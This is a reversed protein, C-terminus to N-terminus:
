KSNKDAGDLSPKMLNRLADKVDDSSPLSESVEQATDAVTSELVGGKPAPAHKGADMAGAFLESIGGGFFQRFLPELQALNNYALKPIASAGEPVIMHLNDINSIPASAKEVVDPLVGVLMQLVAAENYQKFAEAQAEMSEAEAKGKALVIAAEAEGKAKAINADARGEAERAEAEKTRRYLEADAPRRVEADLENDRRLADAKATEAQQDAIERDRRAKELPGAASAQAQAQAIEAGLAAKQVETDRRQQEIRLAQILKVEESRANQEAIHVDADAQARAVEPMGLAKIYGNKDDIRNIQFSDISIGMKDVESSVQEHVKSALAERDTILQNTDLSGVVQRLVGSIVNQMSSTILQAFEGDRNSGTFRQAAARVGAEDEKVKFAVVSSVQIDVKNKDTCDIPVEVNFQRLDVYSAVNM